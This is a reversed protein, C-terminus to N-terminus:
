FASPDVSGSQAGGDQRASVGRMRLSLSWHCIWVQPSRHHSWIRKLQTLYLPNEGCFIGSMTRFLKTLHFCVSFTKRQVQDRCGCSPLITRFFMKFFASSKVKSLCICDTTTDLSSRSHELTTFTSCKLKFTLVFHLRTQLGTKEDSSCKGHHGARRTLLASRERLMGCWLSSCCREFSSKIRKGEGYTISACVLPNIWCTPINGSQRGKFSSHWSTKWGDPNVCLNCSSSSAIWGFAVARWGSLPCTFCRWKACETSIICLFCQFWRRM